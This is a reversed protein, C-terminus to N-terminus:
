WFQIRTITMEGGDRRDSGEPDERNQVIGLSIDRNVAYRVCGKPAIETDMVLSPRKRQQWRAGKRVVYVEDTPYSRESETRGETSPSQPRVRNIREQAQVRFDQRALETSEDQPQISTVKGQGLERYGQTLSIGKALFIDRVKVAFRAGDEEPIDGEKTNIWDKAQQRVEMPLQSIMFMCVQKTSLGARLGEELYQAFFDYVQEGVPWVLLRFRGIAEFIDAPPDLRDKLLKFANELTDKQIAELVVREELKGRCLYAPLLRKAAAEELSVVSARFKQEWEAIKQGPRLPPISVTLPTAM